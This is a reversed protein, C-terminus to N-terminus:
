REALLRRLQNADHGRDAILRHAPGAAEVVARALAIDNSNGSSPLLVRPGGFADALGHPKRTWGGRSRGIAQAFAGRKRRGGLSAGECPHRRDLGDRASGSVGSQGTLAEFIGHWIGQRSGRNFRNCITTCPGHVAPCDRWRAGSRLMHAIGSIVRRDDVRQAGKRGRPLFPEIRAWETDSMGYVDRAM